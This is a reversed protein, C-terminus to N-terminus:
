ETWGGAAVSFQVAKKPDVHDRFYFVEGMGAQGPKLRVVLWLPTDAPYDRAPGFFYPDNGQITIELGEATPQLASIDHPNGWERSTEARRFDFEPLPQAVARAALQILLSATLVNRAFTSDLKAPRNM